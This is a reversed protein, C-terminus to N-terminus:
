AASESKDGGSSSDSKSETKTETKTESKTDSTSETKAGSKPRSDTAYFGSGKFVIPAASFVRAVAGGCAPCPDDFTEQFGHRVERVTGCNTCKYDYLPM